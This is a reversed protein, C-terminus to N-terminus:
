PDLVRELGVQVGHVRDIGRVALLLGAMYSARDTVDHRLMLGEGPSGFLVVQHAVLGPLRISHVRVGGPGEAGRAAGLTELENPDVVDPRGAARRADAIARSTAIATGSPADRKEAHHLEVVEVADFHAAAEACFRQLLVAGVSFNPVVLIRAGGAVARAAELDEETLGSTGVVADKGHKAVWALTERAVDARTLDVVLDVLVPDLAGISTAWVAGDVPAGERPGVCATLTLDPAAAIAAAALSGMKGAAGIVGVRPV